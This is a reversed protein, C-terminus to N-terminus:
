TGDGYAAILAKAISDAPMKIQKVRQKDYDKDSLSMVQGIDMLLSIYDKVSLHDWKLRDKVSDYLYGVRGM